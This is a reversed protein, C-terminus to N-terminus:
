FVRVFKWREESTSQEEASPGLERGLIIEAQYDCTKGSEWAMESFYKGGKITGKVM